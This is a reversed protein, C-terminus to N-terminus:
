HEIEARSERIMEAEKKKKGFLGPVKVEGAIIKLYHTISSKVEHPFIYSDSVIKRASDKVHDNLLAEDNHLSEVKSKEMEQRLFKIHNKVADIDRTDIDEDDSELGALEDKLYELQSNEITETIRNFYDDQLEYRESELDHIFSKLKDVQNYPSEYISTTFIDHLSIKWDNLTNKIRSLFTDMTIEQDDHKDIQNIILILPIGMMSLEKLLAMNHESEVHNYEVTFFIFDSNLLSGNTSERNSDNNSDVAVPSGRFTKQEVTIEYEKRHFVVMYLAFFPK